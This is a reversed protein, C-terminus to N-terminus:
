GGEGEMHKRADCGARLLELVTEADGQTIASRLRELQRSYAGIVSDVAEANALLIDRWPEPKSAAVRTADRLSPGALASFFPAAEGVARSLTYALAHVLHSTWALARDHEGPDMHVVRAGVAGWLAEVRCLAESDTHRTPTLVCTAGHFLDPDAAAAGSRETGAIPHTGIFPCGAPLDAELAEVIPRKVSGADMVVTGPRLHVALARAVPVIAAVPVALVVLDASKVVTLDHSTEDVLGRRRAVGLNPAGRGVGTVHCVVGARRAAGALSGGILGVGVTVMREFLVAV